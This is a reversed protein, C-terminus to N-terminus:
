FKCQLIFTRLDLFAVLDYNDKLNLGIDYLSFAEHTDADWGIVHLGKSPVILDTLIEMWVLNESFRRYTGLLMWRLGVDVMCYMTVTTMITLAIWLWPRSSRGIVKFGPGEGDDGEDDNNDDGGGDALLGNGDDGDDDDGNGSEGGTEVIMTGAIILAAFLCLGIHVVRM